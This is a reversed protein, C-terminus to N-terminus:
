LRRWDAFKDNKGPYRFTSLLSAQSNASRVWKSHQMSTLSNTAQKIKEHGAFEGNKNTQTIKQVISSIFAVDESESFYLM